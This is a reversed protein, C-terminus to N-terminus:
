EVNYANVVKEGDLVADISKVDDANRGIVLAFVIDGPGTLATQLSKSDKSQGDTTGVRAAISRYSNGEGPTVTLKWVSAEYDAETESAFDDGVREAVATPEVPVPVDKITYPTDVKGTGDENFEASEALYFAPRVGTDNASPTNAFIGSAQSVYRVKNNLMDTNNYQYYPTRLWYYWDNTVKFSDSIGTYKNNDVCEKTPKAAYYKGGLVDTHEYVAYLQKVDLLFMRDKVMEAYATDYKNAVNSFSTEYSILESGMTHLDDDADGLISKQEVEKIVAKEYPKFNTLFGAEQDYANNGKIPPNGCLWEVKGAEADSNLWSRMNSDKWYSSGGDKRVWSWRYHSTRNSTPGIVEGSADYSKICLIKDSLMLPGHEDIDVCRWLIPQGYYTGMQVYDGIKIGTEAHAAFAPVFSMATSVSVILSLMKKRM